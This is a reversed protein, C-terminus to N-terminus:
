FPRAVKLVMFNAGSNPRKISANSYHQLKFTAEWGNHFAYGAGLHDGFQFATSLRNDDNNYLESFLHYGIGIEGFWGKKDDRQYRFTPTFGLVTLNQHVGPLNRYANGRWQALNLDNFAGLHRGNSEFWRKEWDWQVGVRLMQVKPGGGFELSMQDLDFAAAVGPLCMLMAAFMPLTKVYMRSKEETSLM